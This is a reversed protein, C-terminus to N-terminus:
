EGQDASKNGSMCYLWMPTFSKLRTVMGIKTERSTTKVFQTECGMDVTPQNEYTFKCDLAACLHTPSLSKYFNKSQHKGVKSSIDWCSYTSNAHYKYPCIPHVQTIQKEEQAVILNINKYKLSM